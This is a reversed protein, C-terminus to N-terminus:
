NSISKIMRLKQLRQTMTLGLFVAYMENGFETRGQIVHLPTSQLCTSNHTDNINM